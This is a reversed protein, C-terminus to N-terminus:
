KLGMCNAYYTVTAPWDSFIGIVGVEKTLVDITNMTDGPNNTVDKISQFYWGGGDALTGSREATWAIIKLGAKKAEKAYLSPVLKGDEVALLYYIPSAIIPVGQEKLEAMSPTWTEPKAFDFTKVKYGRNDLYVAQKAFEPEAKIWYLVDDLLFSQPFVDEPKVGAAKYEDILQQAYAEQTYDGEYPMEVSPTKLEPTMKLGQAKFLEISEAHTLLTGTASYLDTRWGPTGQLYEEITTAATNAGDMKGTLQRFEALTLDSTCCKASAKKTVEGTAPDIVAPTFPETCKKALEPIALINTTTHLDCQSHRCVLERDKTFAVDCEQIGAGMRAAAEYSERTHEPFMLCAGRHSISFDTTSFPGAECKKLTEKLPGEDMDNILYFPRPGLQVSEDAHAVAASGLLVACVGMWLLVGRM